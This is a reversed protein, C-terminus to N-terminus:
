ITFQILKFANIKEPNAEYFKNYHATNSPKAYKNIQQKGNYAVSVYWNSGHLYLRICSCRKTQPLNCSWADWERWRVRHLRAVWRFGQPRGLRGSVWAAGSQYIDPPDRRATGPPSIFGLVTSTFGVNGWVRRLRRSVAKPRPQMM